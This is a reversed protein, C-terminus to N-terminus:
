DSDKWYNQTFCYADDLDIYDRAYWVFRQMLKFWETFAQIREQVTVCKGIKEVIFKREQIFKGLDLFHSDSYQQSRYYKQLVKWATVFNLDQDCLWRQDFRINYEMFPVIRECFSIAEDFTSLKNSRTNGLCDFLEREILAIDAIVLHSEAEQLVEALSDVLPGFFLLIQLLAERLGAPELGSVRRRGSGELFHQM